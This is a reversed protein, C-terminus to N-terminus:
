EHPRAPVLAPVVLVVLVVPDKALRWLMPCLPALAPDLIHIATGGTIVPYTSTLQHVCKNSFKLSEPNHALLPRSHAPPRM